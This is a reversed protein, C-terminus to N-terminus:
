CLNFLRAEINFQQVEEQLGRCENLLILSLEPGRSRSTKMRGHIRHWVISRGRRSWTNTTFQWSRISTSGMMSDFAATCQPNVILSKQSFGSSPIWQTPYTASSNSRRGTVWQNKERGQTLSSPTVSSYLSVRGGTEVPGMMESGSSTRLSSGM